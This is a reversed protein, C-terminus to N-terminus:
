PLVGGSVGQAPGLGEGTDPLADKSVLHEGAPRQSDDPLITGANGTEITKGEVQKVLEGMKTPDFKGDLNFINVTKDGFETPKVQWEKKGVQRDLSALLHILLSPSAPQHKTTQTKEAPYKKFVNYQKVTDYVVGKKYTIKTEIYDYGAAEKIGKAILYRIAAEKGHAVATKLEPHEEIWKDLTQPTIGLISVIEERSSGAATLPAILQLLDLKQKTVTRQMLTLYGSLAFKTLFFIRVNKGNEEQSGM